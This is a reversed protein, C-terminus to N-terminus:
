GNSAEGNTNAKQEELWAIHAPLTKERWEAQMKALNETSFSPNEDCEGESTLWDLQDLTLKGLNELGYEAALRAMGKTMWTESVDGQDGEELERTRRRGFLVGILRSREYDEGQDWLTAAELYSVGCSRLALWATLIQGAPEDLKAQAEPSGFKPPGKREERGPVMDDLWALMIALGEADLAKVWFPRGALYCIRPAGFVDPLFM